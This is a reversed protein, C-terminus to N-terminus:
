VVAKKKKKRRKEGVERRIKEPLKGGDGGGEGGGRVVANDEAFDYICEDGDAVEPRAGSGKLMQQAFWEQHASVNSESNENEYENEKEREGRREEDQNREVMRQSEEEEEDAIGGGGGGGGGRGDSLRRVAEGLVECRKMLRGIEEERVKVGEAARGEVEAMMKAIDEVRKGEEGRSGKLKRNENGLGDCRNEARVLEVRVDEERQMACELRETLSKNQIEKLDSDGRMCELATKAEDERELGREMASRQEENTERSIVLTDELERLSGNKEKLEFM